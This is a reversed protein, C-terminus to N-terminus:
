LLSKRSVYFKFELKFEFKKTGDGDRSHRCESVKFQVKPKNNDKKASSAVGNEQKIEKKIKKFPTSGASTDMKTEEEEEDNDDSEDEDDDSDEEDEGDDDSDDQFRNLTLCTM